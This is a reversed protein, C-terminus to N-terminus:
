KLHCVVCFASDKQSDYLFWGSSSTGDNYVQSSNHVEHCTACTMYRTVGDDFLVDAVLAGGAFTATDPDAIGDALTGDAAYAADFDFGVPHDNTLTDPEGGVAIGGYFLDDGTALSSATVGYYADVAIAGDHCSMCLRSPGILPDAIGSQSFTESIYGDFIVDTFGRSWLPAYDMGPDVAHHPTHCYACARDYMDRTGGLSEAYTRMDHKSGVLGSGPVAGAFATAASFALALASIVLTNRKTATRKMATEDKEFLLM